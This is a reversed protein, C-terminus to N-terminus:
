RDGLLESFNHHKAVTSIDDDVYMICPNQGTEIVYYKAGM